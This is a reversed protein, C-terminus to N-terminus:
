ILNQKLIMRCIHPKQNNFNAFNFSQKKYIFKFNEAQIEHELKEVDIFRRYHSSIRENYSIKKGLKMMPDKTTRFELFIKGNKSLVKKVNRLFQIQDKLTITHIFFRAYINNIKKKGLFNLKLFKSCFNKKYFFNGFNINNIKTATFSIDIGRFNYKNKIFYITDRGNGCGIDLNLDARKFYKVCFKAFSSPKYYKFNKYYKNWYNNNM